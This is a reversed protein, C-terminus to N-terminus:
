AMIDGLSEGDVYEMAIFPWGEHQGIEYITVLNPHRLVAAARAASEGRRALDVDGITLLKVLVPRDVLPDHALYAPGLAGEGLLRAVEYRGIRKPLHNSM